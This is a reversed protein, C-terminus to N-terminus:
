DARLKVPLEPTKAFFLTVHGFHQQQQQEDDDDYDYTIDAQPLSQDCSHGL